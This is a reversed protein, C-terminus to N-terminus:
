EEIHAKIIDEKSINTRQEQKQVYFKWVDKQVLKEVHRVKLNKEVYVASWVKILVNFKSISNGRVSSLFFSSLTHFSLSVSAM